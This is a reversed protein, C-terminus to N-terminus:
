INNECGAFLCRVDDGIFNKHSKRKLQKKRRRGRRLVTADPKTIM